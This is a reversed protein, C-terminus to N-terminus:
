SVMEIFADELTASDGKIQQPTGEAVIVGRHLVIVRDALAEAEALYHTTLLVSRGRAIFARIQKWLARRSEVDLGTTPEDLVLVDPNGCIALAFLVRKQQGGSLQGYLRNELGHLGAAEIVEALPMPTPYYSSFLEIHERVRLTEPVRAIQLMAGVRTRSAADRPNGGFVRAEGSTPAILGLLIRVATTKGAGNAGLLAVLEGPRITLDVGRLADVADFQKRIARFQAPPQANPHLPIATSRM